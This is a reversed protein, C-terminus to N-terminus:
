SSALCSRRAYTDPSAIRSGSANGNWQLSRTGRNQAKVARLAYYAGGYAHQPGHATAVAHGAAHAVATAAADDALKAAAHANLSATRITAMSFRGHQGVRPWGRHSSAPLPQPLRSEFAPLVREACDLAWQAMPRQRGTLVEEGSAAECPAASPGVRSDILRPCDWRDQSTLRAPRELRVVFPGM